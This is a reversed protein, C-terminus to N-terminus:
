RGGPLRPLAALLMTVWGTMTGSGPGPEQRRDEDRRLSPPAVEHKDVSTHHAAVNLLQIEPDVECQVGSWM